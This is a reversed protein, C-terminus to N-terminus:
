EFLYIPVDDTGGPILPPLGNLVGNVCSYWGLRADRRDSSVMLIQSPGSPWVLCHEVVCGCVWAVCRCRRSSRSRGCSSPSGSRSSGSAAFRRRLVAASLRRFVAASPRGLVAASPRRFAPPM